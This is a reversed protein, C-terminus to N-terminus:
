DHCSRESDDLLRRLVRVAKQMRSKATSIPCGIIEAAEAFSLAGYFRLAIIERLEGDLGGVVDALQRETEVRALDEQPCERAAPELPGFPDQDHPSGALQLRRRRRSRLYDTACNSAITFIWTSAAAQGSFGHRGASRFVRLFVEQSLDEAAHIDGLRLAFFRILTRKYRDVFADFRDLHGGGIEKLIAEDSSEGSVPISVDM